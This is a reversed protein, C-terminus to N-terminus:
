WTTRSLARGSTLVKLSGSRAVAASYIPASSGYGPSHIESTAAFTSVIVGLVEVQSEQISLVGHIEVKLVM